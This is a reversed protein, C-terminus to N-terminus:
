GIGAAGRAFTGSPRDENTNISFMAEQRRSVRHGAATSRERSLCYAEIKGIKVGGALVCTGVVLRHAPDPASAVLTLDYVKNAIITHPKIYLVRVFGEAYKLKQVVRFPVFADSEGAHSAGDTVM